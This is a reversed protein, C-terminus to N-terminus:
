CLKKLFCVISEGTIYSKYFIHQYCKSLHQFTTLALTAFVLKSTKIVSGGFMASACINNLNSHSSRAQMNKMTLGGSTASACFSTLALTAFFMSAHKEHGLQWNRAHALTTLALTAFVIKEGDDQGM